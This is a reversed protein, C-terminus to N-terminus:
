MQLSLQLHLPKQRENKGGGVQWNIINVKFTQRSKVSKGFVSSVFECYVSVTFAWLLTSFLFFYM